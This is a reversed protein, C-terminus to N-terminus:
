GLYSLGKLFFFTVDWRKLFVISFRVNSLRYWCLCEGLWAGNQKVMSVYRSSDKNMRLLFLFICVYLSHIHIYINLFTTKRSITTVFYAILALPICTPKSSRTVMRGSPFPDEDAEKGWDEPDTHSYYLFFDCNM